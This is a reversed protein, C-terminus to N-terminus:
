LQRLLRSCIMETPARSGLRPRNERRAPAVALVAFYRMLDVINRLDYRWGMSAIAEDLVQELHETRLRHPRLLRINFDSYKSLQSAVVGEPM